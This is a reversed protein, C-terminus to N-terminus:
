QLQLLEERPFAPTAKCPQMRGRRQLIMCAINIQPSLTALFLIQAPHRSLIFDIATSYMKRMPDFCPDKDKLTGTVTPLNRILDKDMKM